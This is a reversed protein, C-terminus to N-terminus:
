DWENIKPKTRNYKIVEVKPKVVEIKPEVKAPTKIKNAM